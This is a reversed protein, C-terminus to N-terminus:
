LSIYTVLAIDQLSGLFFFQKKDNKKKLIPTTVRGRKEKEQYKERYKQNKETCKPTGVLFGIFISPDSPM